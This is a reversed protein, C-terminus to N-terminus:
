FAARFFEGKALGVTLHELFFLYTFFYFLISNNKPDQDAVGSGISRHEGTSM